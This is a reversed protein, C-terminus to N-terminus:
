TLPVLVHTDKTSFPSTVCVLGLNLARGVSDTPDYKYEKMMCGRLQRSYGFMRGGMDAEPFFDKM